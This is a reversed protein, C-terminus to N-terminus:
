KVDALPAHMFPVASYFSITSDSDVVAYQVLMRVDEVEPGPPIALGPRHDTSLPFQDHAYIKALASKSMVTAEFVRFMQNMTIEETSEIVHVVKTQYRGKEGAALYAHVRDDGAVEEEEAKEKQQKETNKQKETKEEGGDVVLSLSSSVSAAAGTTKQRKGRMVEEM